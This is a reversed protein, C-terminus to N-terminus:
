VNRQYDIFQIFYTNSCLVKAMVYAMGSDLQKDALNTDQNAFEDMAFKEV